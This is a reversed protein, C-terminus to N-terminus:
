AMVTTAFAFEYETFLLPALLIWIYMLMAIWEASINIWPSAAERYWETRGSGEGWNSMLMTLYFSGMTMVLHFFRNMKQMLAQYAQHATGDEEQNAEKTSVLERDEQKLMRKDYGVYSITIILIFLGAWKPAKESWDPSNCSSDSTTALAQFNLYTVYLMMVSSVFGNGHVICFSLCMQVLGFVITVVLFAQSTGCGSAGYEDFFFGILIYSGTALVFCIIIYLYKLAPEADEGDSGLIRFMMGEHTDYAWNILLFTQLILFLWSFWRAWDAYAEISSNSWWFSWIFVGLLLIFKIPNYCSHFSGTGPISLIILHISFFISLCCGVRYVAGNRACLEDCWSHRYFPFERISKDAGLSLIFGVLAFVIFVVIYATRSRIATHSSRRFNACCCSGMM